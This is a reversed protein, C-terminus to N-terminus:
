PSQMNMRLRPLQYALYGLVLGIGYIVTVGIPRLHSLPNAVRSVIYSSMELPNTFADWSNWRLFRGMYIGVGSLLLATFAVSWGAANGFRRAIVSQVDALSSYGLLLGTGAFSLILAVDFWLPAHPRPYLHMFDTVIYPANPLFLLWVAFWCTQAIASKARVFLAAAVAPIAALFLNWVLFSYALSGTRVIRVFLLMGCWAVLAGLILSRKGLDTMDNTRQM